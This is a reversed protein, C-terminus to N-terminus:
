RSAGQQALKTLARAKIADTLTRQDPTLSEFTPTGDICITPLNAVGLKVMMGIGERNIIKHEHVTVPLDQDLQARAELAAKFMYQCPACSASNLTIVDIRVGPEHDYDPVVIDDFRDTQKATLTRAVDRQYPDHVVEAVAELNAPPVAYPLDCGPALVFGVEGGADLCRAAEIRADDTDGLLLAVTLKMNGGFSKGREATIERVRELPIQEDISVQDCRTDAMVELNRTADGCVFMSGLGGGTHIADFVVNAPRTVFETFHEPSIQSVMPDVVAVADAGADLYARGFLAGIAAAHGCVEHVKEPEDFMAMFLDNGMLHMALTFPGTVLGYLALEDGFRSRMRETADLCLPVRGQDLCFPPLEELRLGQGEMLSMPHSVVSPPCDESWNLDCGLVEAEVQLDFMIPLGDSRYRQQAASLGEVILDASRLYADAPRDILRGGHCGVFPLWPVRPTAHRRLAARILQRPTM